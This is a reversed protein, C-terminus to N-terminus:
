LRNEFSACCCGDRGVRCLGCFSECTCSYASLHVHVCICARLCDCVCVWASAYVSEGDSSSGENRETKESFVLVNESFLFSHMSHHNRETPFQLANACPSIVICCVRFMSAPDMGATSKPRSRLAMSETDYLGFAIM